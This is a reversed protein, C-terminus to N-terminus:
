HPYKKEIIKQLVINTTLNLEQGILPKRCIICEKKVRLSDLLCQKCYTHGCPTTVPLFMIDLCIICQLEEQVESENTKTDIQEM